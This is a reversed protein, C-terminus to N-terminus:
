MKTQIRKRKEKKTKKTKRIGRKFSKATILPIGEKSGLKDEKRKM